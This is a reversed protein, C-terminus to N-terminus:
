RLIVNPSHLSSVLAPWSSAVLFASFPIPSFPYHLYLPKEKPSKVGGISGSLKSHQSSLPAPFGEPITYAAEGRRISRSSHTQSSSSAHQSVLPTIPVFTVSTACICLGPLVILSNDAWIWGDLSLNHAGPLGILPNCCSPSLCREWHSALWLKSFRPMKWWPWLPTAFTFDQWLPTALPLCAPFSSGYYYLWSLISTTCQCLCPVCSQPTM